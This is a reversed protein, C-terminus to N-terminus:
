GLRFARRLFQAGATVGEESIQHGLNPPYLAEVHAGRQRLAAESRRGWDAPVTHDAGGNVILVSPFDSRQPLSDAGLLVGALVVAARPAPTRRLASYLAVISGQSFGAMACDRGGLNLNQLERDVFNDLLQAAKAVDALMEAASRNTLEFWQAGHEPRPGRLPGTPLSFAADPLVQGWRRALETMRRWDGGRGHCLVMLQRAPRGSVPPIRHGELLEM